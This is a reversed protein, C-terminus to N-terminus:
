SEENIYAVYHAIPESNQSKKVRVSVVFLRPSETAMLNASWYWLKHLMKDTGSLNKNMSQISGQRLQYQAIVNLAVWSAATKDQLHGLARANTSLGSYIATFSISLIVLAVLIEM